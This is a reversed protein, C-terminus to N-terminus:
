SPVELELGFQAYEHVGRDQAALTVPTLWTRVSSLMCPVAACHWAPFRTGLRWLDGTGVPVTQVRGRTLLLKLDQPYKFLGSEQTTPAQQAPVCCPSQKSSGALPRIAPPLSSAGDEVAGLGWSREGFDLVEYAARPAGLVEWWEM